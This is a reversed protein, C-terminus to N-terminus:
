EASELTTIETRWGVSRKPSVQSRLQRLSVAVGAVARAIQPAKAITKSAVKVTVVAAAAVVGAGVFACAIGATMMAAEKWNGSVAFEDFRQFAGPVFTTDVTSIIGGHLNTIQYAISGAQATTAVLDGNPGSVMRNISGLTTNETIWRPPITL